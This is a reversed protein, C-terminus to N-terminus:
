SREVPLNKTCDSHVVLFNGFYGTYPIKHDMHVSIKHEQNKSLGGDRMVRLRAKTTTFWYEKYLEKLESMLFWKGNVGFRMDTQPVPEGDVEITLKEINCVWTGRYTPYRLVFEYGLVEKDVGYPRINDNTIMRENFAYFDM